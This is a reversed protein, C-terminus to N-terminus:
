FTAATAAQTAAQKKKGTFMEVMSGIKDIQDDDLSSFKTTIRELRKMVKYQQTSQVWEISKVYAVYALVVVILLTVLVAAAVIALADLWSVSIMKKRLGFKQNDKELATLRGM